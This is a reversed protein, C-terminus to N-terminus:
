AVRLEGVSEGRSNTVAHEALGGTQIGLRELFAALAVRQPRWSGDVVKLAVALGDDRTACLLGEAGGKAVWGPAEQMLTTDPSAPGRILEPHARM